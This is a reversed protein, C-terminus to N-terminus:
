DKKGEFIVNNEGKGKDDSGLSLLTSGFIYLLSM